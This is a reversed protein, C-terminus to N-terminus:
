AGAVRLLIKGTSARSEILRHAEAAEALDYEGTIPMQVRGDAVLGFARAAIARLRDPAAAALGLVSFSFAGAAKPALTDWDASWPDEDSANGFSVLRGFLALVDLSRRWTEGGVPDLIVDVGAGGTAERARADFDAALFVDDYGFERAYEAKDPKSVVGFVGDAQALRAVQGVAIGVAGAAGHVLVSEGALLRGVDHILAQATPLVIPLAAATRLDLGDPLAFTVAAPATVVDAYAGSTTVATVAQGVELGTVGEGLARVHGSAELGPVFPLTAVRYGVSRAKIDAFNVGVYAVDIAVEGPGPAPEPQERVALVEPGGLEEFGVARM